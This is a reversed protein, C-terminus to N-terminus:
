NNNEKAFATGIASFILVAAVIEATGFTEGLFLASSSLGVLPVLLVSLSAPAHTWRDVSERGVVELTRRAGVGRGRHSRLARRVHDDTVGELLLQCIQICAYGRNYFIIHCKFTRNFCHFSHFSHAFYGRM